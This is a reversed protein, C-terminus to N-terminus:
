AVRTIEGVNLHSNEDLKEKRCPLTGFSIWAM